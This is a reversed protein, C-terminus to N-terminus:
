CASAYVRGRTRAPRTWREGTPKSSRRPSSRTGRGLLRGSEVDIEYAEEAHRAAVDWNGARCEVEALYCLLEDRVLYRGRDEFGTLEQQLVDRSEDLSGAWLLQLGYCARSPTYGTAEIGRGETMALDQLRLAEHRSDEAPRGLLFEVMGFTSLADGRITLDTIRRAHETSARANKAADTLDGRYIGVWALHEFSATSLTPEGGAEELAQECLQVRPLDLWSIAALQFLIRARDPGPKGNAITEELLAFSRAADGADFHYVAADVGRRLIGAADEPPTVKRALEALEAAADPAGRAAAHRAASDLAAAVERDAGGAALALHRAGEEPDLVVEALRRHLSRRTETSAAAYVTSGLLPHSTSGSARENSSTPRRPRASGPSLEIM